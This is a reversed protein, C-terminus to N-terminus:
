IDIFDIENCEKTKMEIERYKEDFGIVLKPNSKYHIFFKDDIKRDLHYHGSHWEKFKLNYKDILEQFFTSARDTSKVMYGDYKKLERQYEGNGTSYWGGSIPIRIENLLLNGISSPLNHTLVIDVEFNYKKLNKLTNDIDDQQFDENKWWNVSEKRSSNDYSKAGGMTLVRKGDILYIEGRKLHLVRGYKDEYAIGVKGGMFDITKLEKLMDHNDHNGDIFCVQYGKRALNKLDNIEQKYYKDGPKSWVLGFDGLVILISNKNHIADITNNGRRVRVNFDNPRLRNNCVKYKLQIDKEILPPFNKNNLKRLDQDEGGHTDGCVSLM